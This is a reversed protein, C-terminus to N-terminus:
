FCNSCSHVSAIKIKSPLLHKNAWLNYQCFLLNTLGLSTEKGFGTTRCAKHAIDAFYRTLRADCKEFTLGLTRLAHLCDLAICALLGIFDCLIYTTSLSLSFYTTRNRQEAIVVGWGGLDFHNTHMYALACWLRVSPAKFSWVWLHTWNRHLDVPSASGLRGMFKHLVSHQKTCYQIQATCTNILGM